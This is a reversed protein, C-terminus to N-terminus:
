SETEEDAVPEPEPKKDLPEWIDPHWLLPSGDAQEEPVDVIEGAEVYQDPTFDSRITQGSINRYRAM